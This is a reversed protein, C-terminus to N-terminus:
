PPRAMAVWVTSVSAGPVDVYPEASHLTCWHLVLELDDVEAQRRRRVVDELAALTESADLDGLSPLM